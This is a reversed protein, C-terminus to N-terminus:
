VSTELLVGGIEDNGECAAVAALVSYLWSRQAMVDVGESQLGVIANNGGFAVQLENYYVDRKRALGLCEDAFELLLNVDGQIGRHLAQFYPDNSYAVAMKSM